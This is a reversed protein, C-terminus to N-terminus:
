AEDESRVWRLYGETGGHATIEKKMLGRIKETVRFAWEEPTENRKEVHEDPMSGEVFRFHYVVTPSQGSPPGDWHDLVIGNEKQFKNGRLASCVLPTRGTPMGKKKLDAEVPKVAISFKKEGRRRAPKVYADTAFKRIYGADITM